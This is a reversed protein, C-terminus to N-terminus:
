LTPSRINCYRIRDEPPAKTSTDELLPIETRLPKMSLAWSVVKAYFGHHMCLAAEQSKVELSDDDGNCIIIRLHKKFKWTIKHQWTNFIELTQDLNWMTTTLLIHDSKSWIDEYCFIQSVYSFIM